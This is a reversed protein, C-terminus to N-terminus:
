LGAEVPIIIKLEPESAVLVIPVNERENYTPLVVALEIPSESASPTM